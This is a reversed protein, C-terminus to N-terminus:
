WYCYWGSFLIKVLTEDFFDKSNNPILGDDGGLFACSSIFTTVVLTLLFKM